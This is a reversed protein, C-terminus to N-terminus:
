LVTVGETYSLAVFIYEGMTRFALTEFVLFPSCQARGPPELPGKGTVDDGEEKLKSARRPPCM